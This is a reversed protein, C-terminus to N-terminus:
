TSAIYPTGTTDLIIDARLEPDVESFYITQGPQYRERYRHEADPGMHAQDRAIARRLAAEPDIRLFVVLDWWRSLEPRQLFVGDFMLVCDPALDIPALQVASDTRYDFVATRIPQRDVFPALLMEALAELDFSDEYYSRGPDVELRAHRISAPHHFGDISARVVPISRRTLVAALRDAVTTKGAADIGDVAVAFRGRRRTDIEDAIQDLAAWIDAPM